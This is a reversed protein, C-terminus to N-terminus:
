SWVAVRQGVPRGVVNHVVRWPEVAAPALVGPLWRELVAAIAVARAPEDGSRMKLALGLGRDVLAVNLLAQAGVKSILRESSHGVIALDLRGDGSVAWPSALMAAGIRGLTGDAAQTRAALQAWARAMGELPLVFCPVGCGDVVADLVQGGTFEDVVRRIHQQVPHAPDRYDQPAGIARAAAAMFSHKGSCNNHVATIAHRERVLAAAAGEHMPAHGGCFLHQEGLELAGLLEFVLAVHRAQASHSAAGVALQESTFRGVRSAPLLSLSGCLQFPKAASRWTTTMGEGVRELVRRQADCLVAEVPHVSEVATGRQQVIELRM